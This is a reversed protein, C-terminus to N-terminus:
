ATAFNNNEALDNLDKLDSTMALPDPPSNIASPKGANPNGVSPNAVNPNYSVSHNKPRSGWSWFDPSHAGKTENQDATHNTANITDNTQNLSDTQNLSSKTLSNLLSLGSSGGLDIPTQSFTLATMLMLLSLVLILRKTDSM